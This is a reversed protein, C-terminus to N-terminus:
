LSEIFRITPFSQRNFNLPLWMENDTALKMECVPSDFNLEKGIEVNERLPPRVKIQTDSVVTNIEYLRNDISFRQGPELEKSAIIEINLVVDGAVAEQTTVVEVFQSEFPTEDDHTTDDDHFVYKNEFEQQSVPAPIRDYCEFVPMLISNLMGEAKNSIARWLKVMEPTYIPIESFEARWIGASNSVVQMFGSSSSTSRLSRPAIDVSIKQPKLIEKPWIIM